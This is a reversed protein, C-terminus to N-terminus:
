FSTGINFTFRDELSNDLSKLPFGLSFTLVGMPSLWQVSVGYSAQYNKPSSYDWFPTDGVKTLQSYANYNFETDWVAGVDVCLSTRV